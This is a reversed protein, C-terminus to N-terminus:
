ISCPNKSSYKETYYAQAYKPKCNESRYKKLQDDLINDGVVVNEKIKIISPHKNFKIISRSINDSKEDYSCEDRFGRIQLEKVANIFYFNVTEAM